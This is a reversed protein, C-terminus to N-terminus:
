DEEVKERLMFNYGTIEYPNFRSNHCTCFAMEWAGFSEAKTRAEKYGPVCCFHTCIASLGVLNHDNDMFHELEGANPGEFRDPDLKLVMMTVIDSPRADESRWRVAAGTNYDLDAFDDARVRDGIKDLFFWTGEPDAAQHIKEETLFYRFVNDGSSPDKLNPASQYGCYRLRDLYNVMVGNREKEPVGEVFGEDNVRVPILPLGRPAPSGPMARAGFYDIFSVITDGPVAIQKFMGFGAAGAVGLTAAGMAGKVFRRRDVGEEEEPLVSDEYEPM